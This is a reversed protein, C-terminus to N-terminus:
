RIIEDITKAYEKIREIIAKLKVGLIRENLIKTIDEFESVRYGNSIKEVIFLDKLRKIQRRLNSESIGKTALGFNKRIEEVEKKIRSIDKLKNEKKGRLLSLLIDVVIDRSDGEQLLGLSLCFKKVLERENGFKPVEYRRLTLEDLAIDKM